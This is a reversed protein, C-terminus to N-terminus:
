VASLRLGLYRTGPIPSPWYPPIERFGFQEYLRQASSMSPLTDLVMEEYGARQAEEILQAVLGKAVGLGRGSPRVFLRKMEARRTGLDRYAVCGIPADHRLALLLRGQPAAYVGPLSRLEAEFDQYGLDVGAHAQYEHLLEHVAAIEEPSHALAIRLM